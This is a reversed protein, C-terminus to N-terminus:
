GAVVEYGAKRLHRVTAAGIGASAGTVVAVARAESMISRRRQRNHVLARGCAAIKRGWRSREHDATRTAAGPSQTHARAPGAGVFFPLRGTISHSRQERPRSLRWLAALRIPSAHWSM